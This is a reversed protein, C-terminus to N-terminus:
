RLRATATIDYRSTNSRPDFHSEFLAVEGVRVDIPPLELLPLPRKSEKVRAITVHAIADTEFTFGLGAYADRVSRALARFAAGQERAGVYVVRPKREHPFAGLRDLVVAFAGLPAVATTLAGAVEDYRSAEVNGLFALTVHLKEPSEYRAAFGTKRLSEGVAACAGRVDEDLEIGIFLRRAADAM